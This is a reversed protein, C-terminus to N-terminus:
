RLREELDYIAGALVFIIIKDRAKIELNAHPLIIDDGRTIAGIRMNHPLGIQKITQDAMSSSQLIEAEIIEAAGDEVTHVTTIQKQRIHALISSITEIRPNIVANLDIFKSLKLFAPDNILCLANQCGAQRAFLASLINVQDNNTLTVLIEANQIGAEELIDPQLIDGHLVISRQLEAAIIHAQKENNEIIKISTKYQKELKQAVYKGINGGGVIIINRMETITKGFINMIRKTDKQGSVLFITDGLEMSDNNKPIFVIDKRKIGVIIVKLDPFLETLQNLPTDIVPCNDDLNFSLFKINGNNFNTADLAGYVTLRRLITEAVEQEPSIVVDIHLNNNNIQKNYHSNLHGQDGIRAIRKPIDFVSHAVQCSIMNIEDVPTAAIFIDTNYANAEELIAPHAGHGVIGRVDLIDNIRQINEPSQDIVTVENGEAALHQAIGFGIVGAGCVIIKM